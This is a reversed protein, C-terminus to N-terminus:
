TKAEQGIITRANAFAEDAGGVSGDREYWEFLIDLAEQSRAFRAEAAKRATSHNRAESASKDVADLAAALLTETKALRRELFAIHYEQAESM